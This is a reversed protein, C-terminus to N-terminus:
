PPSDTKRKCRFEGPTFVASPSHFPFQMVEPMPRVTGFSYSTQPEPYSPVGFPHIAAPITMGPVCTSTSPVAAPINEIQRSVAAFHTQLNNTFPVQNPVCM